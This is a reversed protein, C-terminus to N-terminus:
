QKEGLQKIALIDQYLTPNDLVIIKLESVVRTVIQYLMGMASYYNKQCQLKGFSDYFFTDNMVLVVKEFEQGIVDHANTHCMLSILKLSEHNYQSSTFTIAQWNFQTTLSDIYQKVDRYDDFYEISINQYDLNDNSYGKKMLNLIFSAMNKNTRIRNTLKYLHIDLDSYNELLYNNIDNNEGNSLYQKTDYSFIIQKNNKICFEVLLKLQWQRTRQAEDIIIFDKDHLNKEITCDTISSISVLNWGYKIKLLEHGNNLKGSHIILINKNKNIYTKAIDYVLLTKGTGANASICFFSCTDDQLKQIIENKINEQHPTLFYEGKIFNKTKNFPSILYNSPIFEDDPNINTNIKQNKLVDILEEADIITIEEVEPNYKYIYDNEVYTYLKLPKNLFKLYYYNKRMQDIIKEYKIDEDLEGKLEINVVLDDGFRLLDFEKSIQPITYGVFYGSYICFRDSKSMLLDCLVKLTKAEDKKLYKYCKDVTLNNKHIAKIGQYCGIINQIKM